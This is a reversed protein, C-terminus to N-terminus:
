NNFTVGFDIDYFSFDNLIVDGFKNYTFMEYWVPIVRQERTHYILTCVLKYRIGDSTAGSIHGSFFNGYRLKALLRQGILSCDENSFAVM